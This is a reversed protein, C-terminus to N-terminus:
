RRKREARKVIQRYEEDTLAFGDWVHPILGDDGWGRSLLLNFQEITPFPRRLMLFRCDADQFALEVPSMERTEDTGCPIM